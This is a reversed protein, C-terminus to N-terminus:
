VFVADDQRLTLSVESGAEGGNKIVDLGIKWFDKVLQQKAVCLM